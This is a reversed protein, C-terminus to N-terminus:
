RAAPEPLAGLQQLLGLRDVVNWHEVIQGGEVRVIDIVEIQVERGTPGIGMLEGRHTGHFIKRTVVKDGEAIQDHIVARFDPFAARFAEFQQRVGVAGEYYIDSPEPLDLERALEAAIVAARAAEGPEFGMGIDAIRSLGVLLESLRLSSHASCAGILTSVRDNVRRM